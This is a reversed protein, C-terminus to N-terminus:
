FDGGCAYKNWNSLVPARENTPSVACIQKGDTFVASVTLPEGNNDFTLNVHGTCVCGDDYEGEVGNFSLLRFGGQNVNQRIAELEVHSLYFDTAVNLDQAIVRNLFSTIEKQVLYKGVPVRLIILLLLLFVYVVFGIWATKKMRVRVSITESGFHKWIIGNFTNGNIQQVLSVFNPPSWNVPPSLVPAGRFLAESVYTELARQAAPKFLLFQM